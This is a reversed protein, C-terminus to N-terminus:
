GRRRNREKLLTRAANAQGHGWVVGNKTPVAVKVTVDFRASLQDVVSALHVGCVLVNSANELTQVWYKDKLFCATRAECVTASTTVASAASTGTAACRLSDTSLGSLTARVM